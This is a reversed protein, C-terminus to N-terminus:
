ENDYGMRYFHSVTIPTEPAVSTIRLRNSGQAFPVLVGNYLPYKGSHHGVANCMADEMLTLAEDSPSDEITNGYRTDHDELAKRLLGGGEADLEEIVRDPVIYVYLAELLVEYLIITYTGKSNSPDKEGNKSM